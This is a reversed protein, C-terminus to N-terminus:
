KATGAPATGAVKTRIVRISYVALIVQIFVGAKWAAQPFM